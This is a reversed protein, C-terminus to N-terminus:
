QIFLPSVLCGTAKPLPPPAVVLGGTWAGSEQALKVAPGLDCNDVLVQGIAWVLSHVQRQPERPSSADLFDWCLLSVGHGAIWEAAGAGAGPVPDGSLLDMEHGAAEFRDRGMYLLLADGPEFTVGAATLAADIDAATVPEDPSVWETGRAAPIDALVGRTFLRHGALDAVCPADPDDVSFGSYWQGGFGVHNLADLHTHWRGHASCQFIDFGADVPMPYPTGDSGATVSYTSVEVSLQGEAMGGGPERLSLPRALAACAGTRMATAARQRAAADILNVTGKRDRPGFRERQALERLWGSYEDDM